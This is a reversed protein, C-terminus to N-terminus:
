NKVVTIKEWKYRYNFEESHFKRALIFNELTILIYIESLFNAQIM